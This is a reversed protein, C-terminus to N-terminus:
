PERWKGDEYVETQGPETVGLRRAMEDAFRKRVEGEDVGRAEHPRVARREEPAQIAELLEGVGLGTLDALDLQAQYLADAIEPPTDDALGHGRRLARLSRIRMLLDVVAERTGADMREDPFAESVRKEFLARVLAERPANDPNPESPAEDLVAPPEPAGKAPDARPAEPAVSATQPAPAGAPDAGERRALRAELGRAELRKVTYASWAALALAAAAM